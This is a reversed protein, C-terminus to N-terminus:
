EKIADFYDWSQLDPPQVGVQTMIVMIQARHEIGHYLAQNIFMAKPIDHLKGDIWNIQVTDDPPIKAAMDIFGSGTRQFSERIDALTMPPENEPRELRQGTSIRHFYSQESRAIHQFTDRITGYTGVVTTDLQEDTLQACRELLTMNAWLHHKFFTTLTDTYQM